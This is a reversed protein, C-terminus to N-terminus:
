CDIPDASFLAVGTAFDRSKRPFIARSIANIVGSSSAPSSGSLLRRISRSSSVPFSVGGLNTEAREVARPQISRIRSPVPLNVGSEILLNLWHCEQILVASVSQSLPTSIEGRGTAQPPFLSGELTGAAAIVGEADAGCIGAAGGTRAGTFNAEAGAACTEEPSSSAAMM